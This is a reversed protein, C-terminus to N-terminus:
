FNGIIYNVNNKIKTLIQPKNTKYIDKIFIRKQKIYKPELFNIFYIEKGHEDDFKIYIHIYQLQELFLYRNTKKYVLGYIIDDTSIDDYYIIDGIKVDNIYIKEKKDREILEDYATFIDNINFETNNIKFSAKIYEPDLENRNLIYTM